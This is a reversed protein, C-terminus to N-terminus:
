ASRLRSLPSTSARPRMRLKIGNSKRPGAPRAKRTKRTKRETDRMGLYERVAPQLDFWRDGDYELIGLSQLLTKFAEPRDATRKPWDAFDGLIQDIEALTVQAEGYTRPSLRNAYEDRLFRAAERADDLFPLNATM